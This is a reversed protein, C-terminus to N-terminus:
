KGRDSINFRALIAEITDAANGARVNGIVRVEREWAVFCQHLQRLTDLEEEGVPQQSLAAQWEVGKCFLHYAISTQTSYFSGNRHTAMDLGQSVAAKEFAERQKDTTM